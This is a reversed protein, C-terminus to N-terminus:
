FVFDLLGRHRSITPFRSTQAGPPAPPEGGQRRFGGMRRREAFHEAEPGKKLSETLASTLALCSWTYLTFVHSATRVHLWQHAMAEWKSMGVAVTPNKTEGNKKGKLFFVEKRKFYLVYISFYMLYLYAAQIIIFHGQVHIKKRFAGLFLITSVQPVHTHWLAM